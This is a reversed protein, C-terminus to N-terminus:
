GILEELAMASCGIIGATNGFRAPVIKLGEILEESLGSEIKKRLPDFLLDGAHAVGGGIVIADPNLLYIISTLVTGLLVSVEEWVQCAVADGEKARGALFEPTSEDESIERGAIERYMRRAMEGIQRNGIYRELAGFNGYPGDVGRYDVSMQGIEGAAFQKGRYVQGNLILGGGVGTGLTVCVVNEFGRGAGFRWEAFAMCNADNEILTPMGSREILIERLPVSTWGPVNTLNYTVGNAFDIAGPVGVGVAEIEPHRERIAAIKEVIAGILADPGSFEGTPIREIEGLVSEGRVVGAKVSTGGFDIGLATKTGDSM